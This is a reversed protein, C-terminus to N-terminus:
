RLRNAARGLSTRSLLLSGALAAHRLKPTKLRASHIDPSHRVRSYYSYSGTYVPVWGITTPSKAANYGATNVLQADTSWKCDVEALRHWSYSHCFDTVKTNIPYNNRAFSTLFGSVDVVWDILFSFPIANWVIGPDIRVGLADLHALAEAEADDLKPVTYIFRMTAHYVPRKVWRCRRELSINSRTGGAGLWDSLLGAPWSIANDSTAKVWKTSAPVGDSSPIVRKYHRVQKQGAYKKLYHLRVVLDRLEDQINIIDSVFPVIGFSANLHANNLRSVLERSFRRRFAPNRNLERLSERSKFLRRLSPIPNMRRLDKLELISNVLSTGRNLTPLMFACAQEAYAEMDISPATRLAHTNTIKSGSLEGLYANGGWGRYMRHHVIPASFENREATHYCDHFRGDNGTDDVMTEYSTRFASPVTWSFSSKYPHFSGTAVMPNAGPNAWAYEALTM